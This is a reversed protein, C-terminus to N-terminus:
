PKFELSVYTGQRHSLAVENPVSVAAPAWLMLSAPQSLWPSPGEPSALALRAGPLGLGPLPDPHHAGTPHPGSSKWYGNKFLGVWLAKMGVSPVKETHCLCLGPCSCVQPAPLCARGQEPDAGAAAPSGAEPLCEMFAERIFSLPFSVARGLAAPLFPASPSPGRCHADNGTRM